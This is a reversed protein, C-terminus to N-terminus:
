LCAGCNCHQSPCDCYGCDCFPGGEGRANSVNRIGHPRVIPYAGTLDRISLLSILRQAGSVTQIERNVIEKIQM